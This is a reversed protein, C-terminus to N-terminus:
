NGTSDESEYCEGKARTASAPPTSGWAVLADVPHLAAAHVLM